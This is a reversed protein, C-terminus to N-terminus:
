WRHTDCWCMDSSSIAQTANVPAAAAPYPVHVQPAAATNPVIYSTYPMPMTAAAAAHPNRWTAVKIKGCQECREIIPQM